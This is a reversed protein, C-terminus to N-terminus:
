GYRESHTYKTYVYTAPYSSNQFLDGMYFRVNGTFRRLELKEGEQGQGENDLDFTKCKIQNAFIENVTLSLAFM